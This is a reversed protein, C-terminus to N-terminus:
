RGKEKEFVKVEDAIATFPKGSHGRVWLALRPSKEDPKLIGSVPNGLAIWQPDEDVQVYLTMGGQMGTSSRNMEFRIRVKDKPQPVKATTASLRTRNEFFETDIAAAAAYVLTEGQVRVEFHLGQRMDGSSPTAYLSRGVAQWNREAVYLTAEARWFDNGSFDYELSSYGERTQTGSFRVRGQDPEIRVGQLKRESWPSGIPAGEPRSFSEDLRVRTAVWEDIETIIQAARPHGGQAAREFSQRALTLREAV